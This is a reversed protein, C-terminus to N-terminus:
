AALKNAAAGYHDLYRRDIDAVKMIVLVDTTGFQRDIVAGNGFTAGLRLYGKILPPLARMARRPDIQEKVMLNMDVYRSAIAAPQRSAEGGAFHHLFSLPLALNEPDTGELSACGVMIDIKHYTMYTYIGQWLLDVIRKGRYNQLVCSRGLELIRKDSNAAILGSLDYEAASYFGFNRDAVEQKLLRYTGVVKPKFKRFPKIPVDYDLVMLHDCVRDFPDKDRRSLYAAPNPTASMEEYFVKYRLKQCRRIDKRTRALRVELTGARGLVEQLGALDRVVGKNTGRQLMRVVNSTQRASARIAAPTWERFNSFSAQHKAM